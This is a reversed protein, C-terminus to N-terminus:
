QTQSHFTECFSLARYLERYLNVQCDQLRHKKRDTQSLENWSENSFTFKVLDKIATDVKKSRIFIAYDRFKEMMYKRDDLNPNPAFGSIGSFRALYDDYIRAFADSSHHDITGALLLSRAFGCNILKAM